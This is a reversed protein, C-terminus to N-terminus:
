NRIKTAEKLARRVVKAFEDHKWDSRVILAYEITDEENVNYVYAKNSFKNVVMIQGKIKLTETYEKAPGPEPGQTFKDLRMQVVMDAGTGEMVRRLKAEDLGKKLVTTVNEKAFIPETINDGILDYEPYQFFRVIEDMYIQNARNEEQEANVLPLAVVKAAEATNMAPAAFVCALVAVMMLRLLNKM